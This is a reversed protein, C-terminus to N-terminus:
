EHKVEAIPNKADLLISIQEKLEANEKIVRRLMQKTESNEKKQSDVDGRIEAALTNVAAIQGENLKGQKRFNIIVSLVMTIVSLVSPGVAIVYDIISQFSEVM